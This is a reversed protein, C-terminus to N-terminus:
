PIILFNLKSPSSLFYFPNGLAEFFEIPAHISREGGSKKKIQFEFYREGGFSPNAYWTLQKMKFSFAKDGYIWFSVENILNLLDEKTQLREFSIRLDKIRIDTLTM